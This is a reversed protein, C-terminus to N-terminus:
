NHNKTWKKNLFNLSKEIDEKTEGYFVAQIAAILRGDKNQLNIKDLDEDFSNEWTKKLIGKFQPSKKKIAHKNM